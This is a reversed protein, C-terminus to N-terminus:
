SHRGDEGEASYVPLLDSYDVNKRGGVQDLTGELRGQVARPGALYAGKSYSTRWGWQFPNKNIKKWSLREAMSM